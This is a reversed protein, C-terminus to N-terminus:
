DLGTCATIPWNKGVDTCYECRARRGTVARRRRFWCLRVMRFGFFDAYFHCTKPLVQQHLRKERLHQFNDLYQRFSAFIYQAIESILIRCSDPYFVSILIM